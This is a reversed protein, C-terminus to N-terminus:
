TIVQNQEPLTSARLLSSNGNCFRVTYHEKKQKEYPPLSHSQFLIDIEKFHVRFHTFQTCFPSITYDEYKSIGLEKISVYM